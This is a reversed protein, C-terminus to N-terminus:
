CLKIYLFILNTRLATLFINDIHLIIGVHTKLRRNNKINPCHDQGHNVSIESLFQRQHM